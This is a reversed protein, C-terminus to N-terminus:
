PESKRSQIHKWVQKIARVVIIATAMLTLGPKVAAVGMALLIFPATWRWHEKALFAEVQRAQKLIADKSMNSSM